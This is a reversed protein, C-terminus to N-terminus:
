QLALLIEDKVLSSKEQTLHEHLVSINEEPSIKSLAWVAHARIIESNSVLLAQLPQIFKKNQSNGAAIIINRIYHEYTIGLIPTNLYKEQFTKETLHMEWLLDLPHYSSKKLNFFLENQETSIRTNYPCVEQCIDCGFVHNGLLPRLDLPIIGKHEITLYSICRGANISHDGSICQTPCAQMCLRCDKCLDSSFQTTEHLDIDVLICCLLTFSGLQPHILLSNRGIWGLGAAFALDKEMLPGSDIFIRFNIVESREKNISDMLKIAKTKIIRHYDDYQAYTAIIGKEPSLSQNYKPLPGYRVGLIIISKANKLLQGPKRRAEIVYNKNLFDLQGFQEKRLWKLYDPFHPSQQVDAFGTFSFGLAHAKAKIDTPETPM